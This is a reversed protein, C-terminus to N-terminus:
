RSPIQFFRKFYNETMSWFKLSTDKTTRVIMQNNCGGWRTLPCGASDDVEAAVSLVVLLLELADQASGASSGSPTGKFSSGSYSRHTM